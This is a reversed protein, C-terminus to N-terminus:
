EEKPAPNQRRKAINDKAGPSIKTDFMHQLERPRTIRDMVIYNVIEFMKTATEIDDKLDLRGPHVSGNGVVRVIDLAKEVEVPLGDEVMKAINTDINKNKYGLHHCLKEVILRMLASAGRPSLALINAAEDYDAQLEEPLDPHAPPAKTVIPFRMQSGFWLAFRGCEMCVSVFSNHLLGDANLHELQPLVSVPKDVKIPVGLQGPKMPLNIKQVEPTGQLRWLRVDYWFQTTKTDCHPCNFATKGTGPPAHGGIKGSM